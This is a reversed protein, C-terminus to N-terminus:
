WRARQRRHTQRQVQHQGIAAIQRCRHQCSVLGGIERHQPGRAVIQWPPHEAVRSIQSGALDHDGDARRVAELVRDGGADDARKASRQPARGAPQDLRQNLGIRREVGAVRTSREDAAPSRDDPDVGRGNEAHLADAERDRDVGCPVDDRRQQALTAHPPAHQPQRPLVHRQGSADRAREAQCTSRPTPTTCTSFSPAAAAAPVRGRSTITLKAPLATAPM